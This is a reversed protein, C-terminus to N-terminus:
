PTLQGRVEGAKFNASHINIYLKGAKFSEMQNPTLKTGAPISWTSGDASGALSLIVPGNAGEAAQHIHAMVGAMGSVSVLGSVTGDDMVDIKGQGTAASANPPIERAGSLTIEMTQAGVSMSFVCGLIWLHKTTRNQM